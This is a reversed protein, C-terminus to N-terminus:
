CWCCMEVDVGCILVCCMEVNVVYILMLLVNRCHCGMVFDVVCRLMMKGYIAHCM